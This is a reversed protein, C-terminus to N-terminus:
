RSLSRSARLIRLGGAESEGVDSVSLRVCITRTTNWPAFDVDTAGFDGCTGFIMVTDATNAESQALGLVISTREKDRLTVYQM